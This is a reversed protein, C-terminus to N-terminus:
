RTNAIMEPTLRRKSNEQLEVDENYFVKYHNDLRKIDKDIEDKIAAKKKFQM